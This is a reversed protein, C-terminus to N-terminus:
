CSTNGITCSCGSSCAAEVSPEVLAIDARARSQARLWADVNLSHQVSKSGAAVCGRQLPM